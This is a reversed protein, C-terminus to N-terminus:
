SCIKKVERKYNKSLLNIKVKNKFIIVNNKFDFAKVNSYNVICARHTHHFDLSLNKKVDSLTMTSSYVGSFTKITIKRESENKVIYLIENLPIRNFIRNFKFNLTPNSEFIKIGLKLSDKLNKEYNNFKSIYDLLMLKSKIAEYALEYHATLIIIIAQWDKERILRAADLGSKSGMEIDLIYIKQGLEQNIIKEFDKNYDTFEHNKYDTETPMMITSIIKKIKKRVVEEDDCIVFNLM